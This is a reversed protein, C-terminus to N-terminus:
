IPPNVTRNKDPELPSHKAPHVYANYNQSEWDLVRKCFKIADEFKKAGLAERANKLNAKTNNMSCVTKENYTYRAAIECQIPRGNL